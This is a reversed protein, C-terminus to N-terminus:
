NEISTCHSLRNQQVLNLLVPHEPIKMIESSDLSIVIVL